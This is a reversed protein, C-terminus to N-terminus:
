GTESTAGGLRIRNMIMMRSDRDLGIALSLAVFLIAVLGCEVALIWLRTPAWFHQIAWAALAVAAGVGLPGPLAQRFLSRIKVGTRRCAHYPVWTIDTLLLPLTLGLMVGPAGWWQGMVVGLGICLVVRVLLLSTLVWLVRMGMLISMTVTFVWSGLIGIVGCTVVLYVEIDTLKVWYFIVQRGFLLLVAASSFGLLAGLRTGRIMASQLRENDKVAQLSSALPVFVQSALFVFSGLGGILRRAVYLYTAALPGVVAGAVIPGSERIVVTCITWIMSHGGYSFIERVASRTVSSLQFKITPCIVRVAIRSLAYRVSVAALFALGLNALSPGMVEFTTVVVGVRVFWTAVEILNRISHRQMGLLVGQLPLNLLLIFIGGALWRLAIVGEAIAQEPLKVFFREYSFSLGVCVAAGIVAGIAYVVSATSFTATTGAEDGESSFKAIYYQVAVSMGADLMSLYAVLSAIVAWGGYHEEGLKAIGYGILFFTAVITVVHQGWQSM